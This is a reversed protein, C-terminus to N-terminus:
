SGSIDEHLVNWTEKSRHGHSFGILDDAPKTWRDFFHQTVQGRAPVVRFPVADRRCGDTGRMETIPDEDNGM